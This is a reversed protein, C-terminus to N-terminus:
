KGWDVRDVLDVGDVSFHSNSSVKEGEDWGGGLPFEPDVM